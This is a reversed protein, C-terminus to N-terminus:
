FSPTIAMGLSFQFLWKINNDTAFPLLWINQITFDVLTFENYVFSNKVINQTLKSFKINDYFKANGV